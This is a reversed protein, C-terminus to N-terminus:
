SAKGTEVEFVHNVLVKFGGSSVAVGIQYTGIYKLAMVPLEHGTAVTEFVRLEPNAANDSEVSAWICPGDPQTQLCLIEAGMPMSVEQSGTNASLQFKWITRM